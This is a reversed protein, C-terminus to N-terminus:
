HALPHEIAVVRNDTAGRHEQAESLMTLTKELVKMLSTEYRSLKGFADGNAADRGLLLGYRVSNKWDRQEDEPNDEWAEAPAREWEGAHRANIIAVEFRPIRRLRWLIVALEDVLEFELTSRPAHEDILKM